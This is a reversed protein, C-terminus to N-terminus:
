KVTTRTANTSDVLFPQPALVMSQFMLELGSTGPPVPPMFGVSIGLPDAPQLPQPMLMPNLLDFCEDIYIPQCPGAGPGDFGFYTEFQAFPPAEFIVYYIPQAPVVHGTIFIVDPEEFGSITVHLGEDVQLVDLDVLQPQCVPSSVFTPQSEGQTMLPLFQGELPFLPSPPIVLELWLFPLPCLVDDFEHVFVSGPLTGDPYLVQSTALLNKAGQPDPTLASWLRLEVDFDAGQVLEMGVDVHSVFLGNEYAQLDFRRWLSTANTAGTNPDSCIAESGAGPAPRGAHQSEPDGIALANLDDAPSLSCQYAWAWPLAGTAFLGGSGVGPTAVATPSGRSLSFVVGEAGMALANVDDGPALGLEAEALAVFPPLGASPVVLVDAPSVGMLAATPPDVSYFVPYSTLRTIQIADIDSQMGPLPTLCEADTWLFAPAPSPTLRSMFTDSAAGDSLAERAVDAFGVSPRDVSFTMAVQRGPPPWSGSAPGIAPFVDRFDALADVNGGPPVGLDAESYRVLPTCDSEYSAVDSPSLGPVEPSLPDLSGTGRVAGAVAVLGPAPGGAPTGASSGGRATGISQALCPASLAILFLSTSTLPKM